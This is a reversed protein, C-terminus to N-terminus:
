DKWIKYIVYGFLGLAIWMIIILWFDLGNLVSMAQFIKVIGTIPENSIREAKIIALKNMSIIGLLALLSLSVTSIIKDKKNTM